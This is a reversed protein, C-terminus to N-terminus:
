SPATILFHIKAFATHYYNCSGWPNGQFSLANSELILNGTSQHRERASVLLESGLVLLEWVWSEVPVFRYVSLPWGALAGSRDTEAESVREDKSRQCRCRTWFSTQQTTLPLPKNRQSVSEPASSAPAPPVAWAAAPLAWCPCHTHSGSGLSSCSAQAPSTSEAAAATPSPRCLLVSRSAAAPM